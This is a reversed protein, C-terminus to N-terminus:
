LADRSFEDFDVPVVVKESEAVSAAVDFVVRPVERVFNQVTKAHLTVSCRGGYVSIDVLEVNSVGTLRAMSKRLDSPTVAGANKFDRFILETPRSNTATSWVPQVAGM